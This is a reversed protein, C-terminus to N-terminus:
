NILLGNQCMRVESRCPTGAGVYQAQWFTATQGSALPTGGNWCPAVAFPYNAACAPIPKFYQLNGGGGGGLTGQMNTCMAYCRKAFDMDMSVTPKFLGDYCEEQTAYQAEPGWRPQGNVVHPAYWGTSGAPRHCGGLRPQPPNWVPNTPPASQFFANSKYPYNLRQAMYDDWEKTTPRGRYDDWSQYIGTTMRYTPCTGTGTGKRCKEHADLNFKSSTFIYPKGDSCM